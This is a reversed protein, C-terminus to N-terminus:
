KSKLCQERNYRGTWTLTKYAAHTRGLKKLIPHRSYVKTSVLNLRYLTYLHSQRAVAHIHTHTYTHIHRKRQTHKKRNPMTAGLTTANQADIFNHPLRMLRDQRFCGGFRLEMRANHATSVPPRFHRLATM